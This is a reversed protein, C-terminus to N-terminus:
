RPGPPYIVTTQDPAQTTSYMSATDALFYIGLLALAAGLVILEGGDKDFDHFAGFAGGLTITGAGLLLFSTGAFAGRWMLSRTGKRNVIQSTSVDLVNSWPTAVDFAVGHRAFCPVSVDTSFGASAYSGHRSSMRPSLDACGPITLDPGALQPRVLQILAAAEDNAVQVSIGPAPTPDQAPCHETDKDDSASEGCSRKPRLPTEDGGTLAAATKWKLGPVGNSM